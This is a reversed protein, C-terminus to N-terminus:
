PRSTATTEVAAAAQAPLGSDSLPPLDSFLQWSLWHFSLHVHGEERQVSGSSDAHHFLASGSSGGVAQLKLFTAPWFFHCVVPLWSILRATAVRTWFLKGCNGAGGYWCCGKQLTRWRLKRREKKSHDSTFNWVNGGHNLRQVSIYTCFENRM